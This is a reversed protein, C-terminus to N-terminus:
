WGRVTVTDSALAVGEAIIPAPANPDHIGVKFGAQSAWQNLLFAQNVVDGILDLQAYDPHGIAGIFVPGRVWSVVLDGMPLTFLDHCTALAQHTQHPGSFYGLFGDGVYKVPIGHHGIVWETMTLFWGNLTHAVQHPTLQAATNAFGRMSTTIVTVDLTAQRPNAVGVLEDLSTHLLQSLLPLLSVDPMSLGREWKSIAQPSLHLSNALQVQSLRMADRRKKIRNGLTLADM